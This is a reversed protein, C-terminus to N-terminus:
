VPDDPWSVTGPPYMGSFLWSFGVQFWSLGVQFWSFWPFCGFVMFVWSVVKFFWPFWGFVMFVWSVVKVFWPFWGFVMFSGQFVMSVLSPTPCPLFLCFRWKSVRPWLQGPSPPCPLFLCFRWKSVRPWLQGKLHKSKSLELWSPSIPVLKSRKSWMPGYQVTKVRKVM